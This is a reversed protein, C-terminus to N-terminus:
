KQAASSLAIREVAQTAFAVGKPTLVIRSDHLHIFGQHLLQDINQDVFHQPWSLKKAITPRQQPNKLLLSCIISLAHEKKQRYSRKFHSVIGKEPAFIFTLLFIVGHMTAISGSISLDMLHAFFYGSLSAFLTLFISTHMLSGLTTCLLLASAAPTIMLTVVLLSGAVEFASVASISTLAMLIYYLLQPKFGQTRAVNADFISLILGPYTCYLISSNLLVVVMMQWLAYPGCDLSGIYLRHFPAYALEGLLVMDTDLHITAALTSILIVGVSFFLPFVLGIAADKKLRNTQIIWQTLAVTLLGAVSAGAILLPSELKKIILFMIVIGPLIAHTIADSMLATNNLVLFIGPLVTMIALLSTLIIIELQFLHM